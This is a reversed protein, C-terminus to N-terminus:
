KTARVDPHVSQVMGPTRLVEGRPTGPHREDWAAHAVALVRSWTYEQDIPLAFARAREAMASAEDPEDLLRVIAGRLADANSSPVIRGTVGDDIYFPADYPDTVIVPKGLAMANLYSQQGSTRLSDTQLPFIAMRAGALLRGYELGSTPGLQVNPPVSVSAPPQWHTAIRVPVPLGRVAELLTPYDRMSDGGSFLYDGTTIPLSPFGSLTHHFRVPTMKERPIGLVRHYREAVM